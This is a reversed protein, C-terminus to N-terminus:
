AAVRLDADRQQGDPAVTRSWVILELCDKRNATHRWTASQSAEFVGRAVDREYRLQAVHDNGRALDQCVTWAVGDAHQRVIEKALAVRYSQEAEALSKSANRLAEEGALQASQFRTAADRAQGFDYPIAHETM